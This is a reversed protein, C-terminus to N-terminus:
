GRLSIQRPVRILTSPVGSRRPSLLTKLGIRTLTLTSALRGWRLLTIIIIFGNCRHFGHNMGATCIPVNYLHMRSIEFVFQSHPGSQNPGGGGGGRQNEFRRQRAGPLKFLKSQDGYPVASHSIPPNTRPPNTLTLYAPDGPSPSPHDLYSSPRRASSYKNVDDRKRFKWRQSEKKKDHDCHCRFHM